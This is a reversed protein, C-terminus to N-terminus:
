KRELKPYRNTSAYEDAIEVPMYLTTDRVDRVVSLDRRYWQNLQGRYLESLSMMSM